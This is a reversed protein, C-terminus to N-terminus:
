RHELPHQHLSQYPYQKTGNEIGTTNDDDVYHMSQAMLDNLLTMFFLIILIGLTQIQQSKM